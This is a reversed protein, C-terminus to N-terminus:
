SQRCEQAEGMEMGFPSQSPPPPESPMKSSLPDMKQMYLLSYEANELPPVPLNALAYLEQKKAAPFYFDQLEFELLLSGRERRADFMGKRPLVFRRRLESLFPEGERHGITIIEGSPLTVNRSFSTLAELPHLRIRWLLDRNAILEFVPHKKIAVRLILDGTQHQPMEDAKGTIVVQYGVHCHPPVIADVIESQTQFQNDQVSTGIGACGPCIRINQIIGMSSSMREAIRGQGKCLECTKAQGTFVKRKFRYKVSVGMYAEELTVELPIVRDQTRRQGGGARGMRMGPMFMHFFDPFHQSMDIGEMGKKGFQDYKTRLEPDALVGYAESIQKFREPDGGKDPHHKRAQEKYAKKIEETTATKKLGLLAYYEEDM